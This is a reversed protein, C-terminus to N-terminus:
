LVANIVDISCGAVAIRFHADARPHFIMALIKKQGGFGTLASGLSILVIISVTRRFVRWFLRPDPPEEDQDPRATPTMEPLQDSSGDEWLWQRMLSLLGIGLLINFFTTGVSNLANSVQLQASNIIVLGLFGELSAISALWIIRRNILRIQEPKFSLLQWAPQNPALAARSLSVIVTYVILQGWFARYM